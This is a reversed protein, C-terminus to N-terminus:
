EDTPKLLKALEAGTMKRTDGAFAYDDPKEDVFVELALPVAPPPDLAYPSVSQFTGDRLRFSLHTGCEGCFLREGWASSVFVNVPAGAEFVLDRAEVSLHVGGAWRRCMDCHCAIASLRPLTATFRVAGCLCRGSASVPAKM